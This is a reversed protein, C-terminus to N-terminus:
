ISHVLIHSVSISQAYFRQTTFKEVLAWSHVSIVIDSQGTKHLAFQRECVLPFLKQVQSLLMCKTPMPTTCDTSGMQIHVIKDVKRLLFPQITKFQGGAGKFDDSM